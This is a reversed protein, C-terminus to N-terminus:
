LTFTLEDHKEPRNFLTGKQFITKIIMGDGNLDHKIIWDHLTVEFFTRRTHLDKKSQESLGEPIEVQDKFTEHNYGFNPKIMILSTEDKRM